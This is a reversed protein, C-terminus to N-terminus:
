QQRWSLCLAHLSRGGLFDAPEDIHDRCRLNDPVFMEELDCGAEELDGGFVMLRGKHFSILGAWNQTRKAGIGGM